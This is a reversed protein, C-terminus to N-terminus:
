FLVDDVEFLYNEICPLVWGIGDHALDSGVPLFVVLARKFGVLVLAIVLNFKVHIVERLLETLALDHM